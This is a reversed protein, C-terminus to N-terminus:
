FGRGEGYNESQGMFSYIRIMANRAPYYVEQQDHVQTKIYVKKNL